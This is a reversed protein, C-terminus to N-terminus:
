KFLDCHQLRVTDALPRWEKLATQFDGAQVAELGADFDQAIAMSGAFSLFFAALLVHLVRM